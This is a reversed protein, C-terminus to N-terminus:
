KEGNAKNVADMIAYRFGHKELAEVGKITTGAPSTVQDRLLSPTIKSDYALAGTGKVMSAIVQYATQRDLGHKVAADSMADMMVDVFAPGCGGVVGIIDLQREPVEIVDGLSDLVTMVKSLAEAPIEAPLALGITGANVEVPTNPIINAIVKNPLAKALTEHTIGAAASIFITDDNLVALDKAVAATVPAPTTLIVVDPSLSVVESSTNVLKFNLTEALKTVRPNVPNMASLTFSQTHTLGKIIASGMNGVGIITVKM